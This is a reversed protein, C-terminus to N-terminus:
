IRGEGHAKNVAARVPAIIALGTYITSAIAEIDQEVLGGDTTLANHATRFLDIAADIEDIATSTRAPITISM